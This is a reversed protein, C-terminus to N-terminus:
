TLVEELVKWVRECAETERRRRRITHSVMTESVSARRAIDLHNLGARRILANLRWAPYRRIQGNRATTTNNM